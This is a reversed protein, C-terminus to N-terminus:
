VECRQDAVCPPVIRDVRDRRNTLVWGTLCHQANSLVAADITCSRPPPPLYKSMYRLMTLTTFYLRVSFWYNYATFTKILSLFKLGFVHYIIRVIGCQTRETEKSIPTNFLTSAEPRGTMAQRGTWGCHDRERWYPCIETRRDWVKRRHKRSKLNKNKVYLSERQYNRWYGRFVTNKRAIASHM